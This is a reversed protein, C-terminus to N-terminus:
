FAYSINLTPYLGEIGAVNINQVKMNMTLRSNYTHASWIADLLSLFHNVYITGIAFYSTQYLSNALGRQHAYWLFQPTLIHFDTDNQNSTDWGHSFQPYKGTIEYYDQTGFPALEHSYGGGVADELRNLESWNLSGNTNFVHYQSVDVSANISKINNITWQAYRVPSWHLDNYWEFFATQYDAKHNYIIATTIAATEVALFIGAKLYQGTYLEGAGPLIGSLIGALLPSKEDKVKELIIKATTNIHPLKSSAINADFYLNGSLNNECINQGYVKGHSYILLFICISIVKNNLSM